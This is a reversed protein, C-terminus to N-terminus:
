STSNVSLLCNGRYLKMTPYHLMQYKVSCSYKSRVTRGGLQHIVWFGSDSESEGDGYKEGM